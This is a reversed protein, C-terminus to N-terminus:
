CTMNHNNTGHTSDVFIIDPQYQQLWAQQEKRQVYLVCPEQRSPDFADFHVVYDDCQELDAVKDLFDAWADPQKWTEKRINLALEQLGRM